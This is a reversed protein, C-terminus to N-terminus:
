LKLESPAQQLCIFTIIVARLGTSNIRVFLSRLYSGFVVIDDVYSVPLFETLVQLQLKVDGVTSNCNTNATDECVGSTSHAM